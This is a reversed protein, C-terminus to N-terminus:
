REGESNQLDQASSWRCFADLGISYLIFVLGAIVPAGMIGLVPIRQVLESGLALGGAAVIQEPTISKLDIGQRKAGKVQKEIEKRLAPDRCLYRRCSVALYGFFGREFQADSAVEYVSTPQWGLADTVEPDVRLADLARYQWSLQVIPDDVVSAPKLDWARYARSHPSPTSLVTPSAFPEKLMVGLLRGIRLLRATDDDTPETAVQVLSEHYEIKALADLERLASELDESEM